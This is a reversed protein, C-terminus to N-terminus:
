IQLINIQNTTTVGHTYLYKGYDYVIVGWKSINNQRTELDKIQSELGEITYEETGINNDGDVDDGDDEGAKEKAKGKGKAAAGKGRSAKTGKGVSGGQLAVLAGKLEGKQKELMGHVEIVAARRHNGGCVIMSTRRTGEDSLVLEPTDQGKTANSNICSDAIESRRLLVVIMCEMKYPTFSEYLFEMALSKVGAANLMRPNFTGFMLPLPPNSIDFRNISLMAKCARQEETLPIALDPTLVGGIQSPLGASLDDTILTSPDGGIGSPNDTPGPASISPSQAVSNGSTPLPPETITKPPSDPNDADKPYISNSCLKNKMLFKEYLNRRGTTQSGLPPVRIQLSCVNLIDIVRM